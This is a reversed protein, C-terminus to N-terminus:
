RSSRLWGGVVGSAFGVMEGLRRGEEENVVHFEQLAAAVDDLQVFEGHYKLLLSVYTNVVEYDRRQRLHATLLRIFPALYGLSLTQLTLATSSPPLELLHKLLPHPETTAAPLALLQEIDVIDKSASISSTSIQSKSKSLAKSADGSEIALSSGLFFPAAKPKEPPAIPKNRARINDLNLLTQWRSRPLLSLTLLSSSLQDVTSGMSPAEPITEVMDAEALASIPTLSTTHSTLDIIGTEESIAHASVNTYLSKNTWIQIGLAGAHTTALYEGTPNFAINTCTPALRFADILHGTALDFVRVVSDMSSSIIWRGDNSFVISNIPGVCGFLERVIRRSAVDVVRICLDDCSLALLSSSPSYRLSLASTNPLRLRQVPLGTTFSWFILTGDLSSSIVTQNLSDVVIGTITSTHGRRAALVSDADDPNAKLEKAQSPKLRPPYRQRHVGSQLNFADLAGGASGVFAFTGCATIAVSTVAKADGSEFKWRGARKRGWSWTRAFKDDVHASVISEWGTMSSEEATAKRDNSWVAGSVSGMGGDRNLCCSMDVIPSAKLDEIASRDESLLGVKKAKSKVNGQSLEMNQGDKRLSFGWLSRDQGASLLWKGSAESGDSAAPLFMLETVPASHGSRVHLMRPMPSFPTADFVWSRVANDLGSSVIVPQGSLFEIGTIGSARASSSTEHAGRVVGTVRGGHNLDWLTIDGNEISATAMVGDKRGDDGAGVGDSRFTISTIPKNGTSSVSIIAEDTDVDYLCLSGDSYAVSLVCLAMAPVLATVGGATPSPAYLTHVLKATSINYIEVSGDSCGVFVKNLYTPMTCIRGSFPTGGPVASSPRTITTYHEYSDNRWVEIAKNGCAVIWSGFVVIHEITQQLSTRELEAILRGRKFVWIGQEKTSTGGWAVLVRDRYACTATIVNPCQPRSLFVLQLGRRLDYTQLSRGVSTTIQFTTKGLATSTFPVSTPSVLGINQGSTLLVGTDRKQLRVRFPTFLRSGEHPAISTERDDTRRQRKAAPLAFEDAAM